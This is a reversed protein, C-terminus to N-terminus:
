GRMRALASVPWAPVLVGSARLSVARLEESAQPLAGSEPLSVVRLEAM